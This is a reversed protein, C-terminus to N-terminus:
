YSAKNLIIDSAMDLYRLDMAIFKGLYWHFIQQENKIDVSIYVPTEYYRPVQSKQQLFNIRTTM